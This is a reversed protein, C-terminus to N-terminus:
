SVFACECAVRLLDVERELGFGPIGGIMGSMKEVGSDVRGVLWIVSIM